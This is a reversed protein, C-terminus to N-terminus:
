IHELSWPILTPHLLDFLDLRKERPPFLSSGHDDGNYDMQGLGEGTQKTLAGGDLQLVFLM